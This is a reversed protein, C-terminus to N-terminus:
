LNLPLSFIIGMDTHSAAREKLPYWALALRTAQTLPIEFKQLFDLAPPILRHSCLISCNEPPKNLMIQATMPATTEFGISFFIVERDPNKRQLIYPRM